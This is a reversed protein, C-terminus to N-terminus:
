GSGMVGCVLLWRAEKVRGHLVFRRQGPWSRRLAAQTGRRRICACSRPASAVPVAACSHSPNGRAAHEHEHDVVRRPGLAAELDVEHVAGLHQQDVARDFDPFSPCEDDARDSRPRSARGGVGPQEVAKLELDAAAVGNDGRRRQGLDLLRLGRLEVLWGLPGDGFSEGFVTETVSSALTDHLHCMENEKGFPYPCLPGNLGTM